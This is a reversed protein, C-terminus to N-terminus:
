KLVMLLVELITNHKSRKVRGFLHHVPLFHCMGTAPFRFLNRLRQPTDINSRPLKFTIYPRRISSLQLYALLLALLVTSSPPLRSTTPFALVCFLKSWLGTSCGYLVLFVCRQRGYSQPWFIETINPGWSGRVCLSQAVREFSVFLSSLYFIKYLLRGADEKRADNTRAVKDDHTKIIIPDTHIWCIYIYIEAHILLHSYLLLFCALSILGM